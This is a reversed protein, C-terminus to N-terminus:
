GTLNPTEESKIKGTNIENIYNAYYENSFVFILTDESKSPTITLFDRFEIKKKTEARYKIFPIIIAFALLGISLFVSFAIVYLTIALILGILSSIVTLIGSKSSIGTKIELNKHCNNCVPINLIYDENYDRDAFFAGHIIKRYQDETNKGCIICIKPFQIDNDVQFEITNSTFRQIKENKIQNSYSM